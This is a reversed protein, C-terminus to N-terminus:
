IDSRIQCFHACLAFDIYPNEVIDALTDLLVEPEVVGASARVWGKCDGVIKELKSWSLWELCGWSPPTQKDIEVTPVYVLAWKM